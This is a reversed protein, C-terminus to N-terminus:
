DKFQDLIKLIPVILRAVFDILAISKAWKSGHRDFDPKRFDM